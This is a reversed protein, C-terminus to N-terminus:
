RSILKIEIAEMRLNQGTTGAVDGNCVWGQWGINQVHARYCLGLGSPTNVLRIRIAELRLSQETTGAPVGNCFGTVWGVREIYPDYCVSASPLNVLNIKIAEMRLSQDTTGATQGNRMWKQWGINQVHAQYKISSGTPAVHVSTYTRGAVPIGNSNQRTVDPDSFSSPVSSTYLNTSGESPTQIVSYPLKYESQAANIRSIILVPSLVIVLSGLFFLVRGIWAKRQWNKAM